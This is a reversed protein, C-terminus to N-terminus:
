HGKFKNAFSQTEKKLLYHLVPSRENSSCYTLNCLVVAKSRGNKEEVEEEEVTM